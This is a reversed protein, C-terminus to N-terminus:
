GAADRDSGLYLAEIAPAVSTDWDHRQAAQRCRDAISPDRALDLAASCADALAEPDEPRALVGSSPEVLEPLAAHDSAVIPTGAALSEIMVLGFAENISPLVTAWAAGYRGSLEEESGAVGIWETRDRAAQPAAKLVDTPDGTGVLWLKVRPESRAMIALAELLTPIGKRPEDLAGSYLLTPAESRTGPRFRDLRVGGPTLAGVRGFDRQLCAQAYRSFCGYVDIEDVVRRHAPTDPRNAWYAGDPVGLNTYITRHRSVRRASLAGSADRAGMSHVVDFRGAALLPVVEAGFRREASLVGKRASRQVRLIRVGDV